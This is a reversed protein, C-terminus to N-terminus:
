VNMSYYNESLQINKNLKFYKSFVSSKSPAIETSIEYSKPNAFYLTIGLFSAIISVALIRLKFKLLTELISFLDIEDNEFYTKQQTTKKNM